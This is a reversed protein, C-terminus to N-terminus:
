CTASALVLLAGLPVAVVGLVRRAHNIVDGPLNVVGDRNLDYDSTAGVQFMAAKALAQTDGSWIRLATETSTWRRRATASAM